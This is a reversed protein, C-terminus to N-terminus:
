EQTIFVFSEGLMRAILAGKSSDCVIVDQNINETIYQPYEYLPENENVYQLWTSDEMSGSIRLLAGQNKNNKDLLGILLDSNFQSSYICCPSM